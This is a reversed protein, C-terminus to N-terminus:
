LKIKFGGKKKKKKAPAPAAVAAATAPVAKLAELQKEELAIESQMMSLMEKKAAISDEVASTKAEKDAPALGNAWAKKESSHNEKVSELHKDLCYRRDLSRKEKLCDSPNAALASLSLLSILGTVLIKM